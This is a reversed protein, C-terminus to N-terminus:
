SRPPVFPRRLTPSAVLLPRSPSLRGTLALALTPLSSTPTGPTTKWAMHSSDSGRGPADRAQKSGFHAAAPGTAFGLCPAVVVLLVLGSVLLRLATM